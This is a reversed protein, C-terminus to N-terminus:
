LDADRRFPSKGNVHLPMTVAERAERRVRAEHADRCAILEVLTFHRWEEEVYWDRTIHPVDCCTCLRWPRAVPAAPPADPTPLDPAM